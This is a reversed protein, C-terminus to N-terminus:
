KATINRKTIAPSTSRIETPSLAPSTPSWAAPTFYQIRVELATNMAAAYVFPKFISGTPRKAVAHNLQSMGYNRGGVLALVEGTHPDIAVLAVQAQPGPLVKTEYKNKAIRTRKTRLKTVQDDVLKMGTQVAAAAAGQLDPDLTTYIRYGQDNMQREDLKSILTERLLDVFYPADSAEVNPPALKLPTAKAKEADAQPLSHTDM